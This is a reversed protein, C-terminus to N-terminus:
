QPGMSRRKYGSPPEFEAPDLTRRTSSRLTWDEDLVGDEFSEVVVPFRGIKSLHEFIETGTDDDMIGGGSEKLFDGYAILAKMLTQGDNVDSVLAGYMRDTMVDNKFAEYITTSYGNKRIKKGTNVVRIESKQKGGRQNKLADGLMGEMLARQQPTMGKLAENIPNIPTVGGSAPRKPMPSYTGNNHDVFILSGGNACKYLAADNKPSSNGTARDDTTPSKVTESSEAIADIASDRSNISHENGGSGQPPIEMKLNCGDVMMQSTEPGSPSSSHYTTEVEFVVGANAEIAPITSISMFLTALVAPKTGHM